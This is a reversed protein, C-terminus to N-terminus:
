NTQTTLWKLVNAVRNRFEEILEKDNDNMLNMEEHAFALLLLNLRETSSLGEKLMLPHLENVKVDIGGDKGLAPEWLQGQMHKSLLVSGAGDYHVKQVVGLTSLSPDLNGFFEFKFELYERFIGAFADSFGSRYIKLEDAIVNGFMDGNSIGVKDNLRPASAAIYSKIKKPVYIREYKKGSHAVTHLFKSETLNVYTKLGSAKVVNAEISNFKENQRANPLVQQLQIRNESVLSSSPASHSFHSGKLLDYTRIAYASILHDLYISLFKEADFFLKKVLSEPLPIKGYWVADAELRINDNSQQCFSLFEKYTYRM